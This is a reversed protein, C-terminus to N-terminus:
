DEPYLIVKLAQRKRLLDLGEHVKSLPLRHSVVKDLPLSNSELIKAVKEFSFKGIFAGKIIIEKRVIEAVPINPRALEDHGFQLITGGNRVVSIAQNIMPGVAEVVVDAGDGLKRKVVENLDEKNPDVVLTAGCNKAAVQRDDAIESVIINSAGCAKLMCTFFLGIPGAGLIVVNDGPQIHLKDVASVVCSFPEALAALHFPVDYGIKYLSYEPVVVFSTMAGDSFIGITNPHNPLEASYLRSCLDPRGRRCELCVGCGPHPDVIVRDRPKFDKVGDGIEMITGAFEHGLIIGVKAPHAAPIQLIHLDTGCIGVGGVKLLVENNQKIQPKPRDELVLKGDGKFVAALM